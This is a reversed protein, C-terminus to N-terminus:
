KCPQHCKPPRTKRERGCPVNIATLGCRCKVAAKLNCPYCLGHHCLSTCKHKGCSLTKGCIKDCPPCQNDCCKRNCAHKNCDRMQKCKTDCLYLKTCPLEKSHLGCRCEKRTIELCSGCNGKHCREVCIHMGCSLIKQCTDGCPGIEESCPAQSKEKGCPCERPLGLPCDGCEGVNHCRIQCKHM